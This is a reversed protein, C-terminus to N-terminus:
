YFWSEDYGYDYYNEYDSELEIKKAEEYKVFLQNNEYALTLDKM